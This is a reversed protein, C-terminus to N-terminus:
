NIIKKIKKKLCFVAYSIKVHSSNLRTSKRDLFLKISIFDAIKNYIPKYFSESLAVLFITLVIFLGSFLMNTKNVVIMSHYFSQNTDWESVSIGLAALLGIITVTVIIRRLNLMEMVLVLVSLIALAILTNM